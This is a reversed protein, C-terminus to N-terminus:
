ARSTRSPRHWFSRLVERIFVDVLHPDFQTAAHLRLERVAEEANMAPHYPRDTTMADYADCVALIRAEIPIDEGALGDPYGMGDWREHHGLIWPLMERQASAELIRVGLRSHERIHEYEEEDLPTTKRLIEDAIGIKGVDHLLGASRILRCREEPLGLARALHEALRSVNRSHYQTYPDRADVAAALVEVMATHSEEELRSVHERPDLSAIVEPDYIVVTDGSRSKSWYVAGLAFRTLDDATAAHMPMGAIGISMTLPDVLGDDPTRARHALRLCDQYAQVPNTSPLIVAFDDGGIRYATDCPRINASITQALWELRREGAAYGHRRNFGDFDDIDFICLSLDEGKEGAGDIEAALRERFYRHNFLGTLPDTPALQALRRNELTVVASRAMTLVAILSASVSLVARAVPDDTSTAASILLPIGLAGLMLTVIGPWHPLDLEPTPIRYIRKEATLRYRAALTFACFALLMLTDAFGQPATGPVSLGVGMLLSSALVGAASLVFGALLYLEFDRWRQRRFSLLYLVFAGVTVPYVVATLIEAAPRDAAVVGLPRFAGLFIAALVIVLMATFDLSNRLKRLGVVEYPETVLLVVPVCSLFAAVFFVDGPSGAAPFDGTAIVHVTRYAMGSFYLIGAVSMLRWQRQEKGVSARAVAFTGALTSLIPVLFLIAAVSARAHRGTIFVFVCLYASVVAIVFWWAQSRFRAASPTGPLAKSISEYM